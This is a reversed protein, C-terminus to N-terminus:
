IKGFTPLGLGLYAKLDVISAFDINNQL